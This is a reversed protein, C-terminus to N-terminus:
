LIYKCEDVMDLLASWRQKRTPKNERRTFEVVSLIIVFLNSEPLLCLPYRAYAHLTPAPRVLIPPLLLLLLLLLLPVTLSFLVHQRASSTFHFIYRQPPILSLTGYSTAQIPSSFAQAMM